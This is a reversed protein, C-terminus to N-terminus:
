TSFFEIANKTIKVIEKDNINVFHSLTTYSHLDELLSNRIAVVVLSRILINRKVPEYFTAEEKGMMLIANRFPIDSWVSIVSSLRHKIDKSVIEIIDDPTKLSKLTPKLVTNIYQDIM